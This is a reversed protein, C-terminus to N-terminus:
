AQGVRSIYFREVGSLRISCATQSARFRAAQKSDAEVAAQEAWSAAFAIAVSKRCQWRQARRCWRDQIARLAQPSKGALIRDLIQSM